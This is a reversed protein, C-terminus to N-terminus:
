VAIIALKVPVKQLQQGVAALPTSPDEDDSVADMGFADFKAAPADQQGESTPQWFPDRATSPESAAQPAERPSGAIGFPDFQQVEGTSQLHGHTLKLSGPQSPQKCRAACAAWCYWSASHVAHSCAATQRSATLEALALPLCLLHQMCAGAAAPVHSVSPNRSHPQPAKGPRVPSSQQSSAASQAQSADRTGAAHAGRTTLCDVMGLALCHM